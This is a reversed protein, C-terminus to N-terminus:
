FRMSGLGGRGGYAISLLAAADRQGQWRRRMINRHRQESMDVQWWVMLKYAEVEQQYRLSRAAEIANLRDEERQIALAKREEFTGRKKAQGM